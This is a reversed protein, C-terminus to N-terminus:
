EPNLASVKTARKNSEKAILPALASLLNNPIQLNGESSVAHSTFADKSPSLGIWIDPWPKDPVAWSWLM